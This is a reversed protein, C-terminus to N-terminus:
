SNSLSKVFQQEQLLPALLNVITGRPHIGVFEDLIKRYLGKYKVAVTTQEIM